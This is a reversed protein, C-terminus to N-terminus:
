GGRHLRPCRGVEGHFYMVARQRRGDVRALHGALIELSALSAAVVVIRGPVLYTAPQRSGPEPDLVLLVGVAVPVEERFAPSGGRARHMVGSNAGSLPRNAEPQAARVVLDVEVGLMGPM